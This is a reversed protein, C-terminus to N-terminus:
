RVEKSYTRWYGDNMTRRQNLDAKFWCQNVSNPDASKPRSFGQCGSRQTCTDICQQLTGNYPNGPLDSLANTYVVYDNAVYTISPAPPPQPVAPPPAAAPPPAQPPTPIPPPIVREPPATPPFDGAVVIISSVTDNMDYDVLCPVDRTLEVSRGTFNHEYITVKGPKKFSISSTDDNVFGRAILAAMDYKGVPLDVRWGGYNCHQYITVVIDNEKNKDNLLNNYEQILQEHHVRDRQCESNPDILVDFNKQEVAIDNLLSMVQFEKTRKTETWREIEGELREKENFFERDYIEFLLSLLIQFEAETYDDLKVVYGKPNEGDRTYRLGMWGDSTDNVDKNFIPMHEAPIVCSNNWGLLLRSDDNYATANLKRMTMVVKQLGIDYLDVNWGHTKILNWASTNEQTDVFKEKRVLLIAIICTIVLVVILTIWYYNM